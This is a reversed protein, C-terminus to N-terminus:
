FRFCGTAAPASRKSTSACRTSAFPRKDSSVGEAETGEEALVQDAQKSALDEAPVAFTAVAGSTEPMGEAAGGVPAPLMAAVAAIVIHLAVSGVLGCVRRGLTPGTPLLLDM